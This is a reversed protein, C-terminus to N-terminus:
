WKDPHVTNDATKSSIMPGSYLSKQINNERVIMSTCKLFTHKLLMKTGEITYGVVICPHNLRFGVYNARRRM